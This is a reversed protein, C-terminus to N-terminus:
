QLIIILKESLNFNKITIGSFRKVDYEALYFFGNPM